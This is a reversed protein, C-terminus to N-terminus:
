KGQNQMMGQNTLPNIQVDQATVSGDSNQSGVVNVTDGTKLDSQSGKTAKVFVTSGSLIVIKTSGDSMKVTLSNNDISLIEGRVPRFNSNQGVGQRFVGGQSFSGAQGNGFQGNAFNARQSKQYQMGGLFGAVGAVIILVAATILVKNKNM